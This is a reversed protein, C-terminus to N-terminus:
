QGSGCTASPPGAVVTWLRAVDPRAIAIRDGLEEALVAHAGLEPHLVDIETKPVDNWFVVTDALGPARLLVVDCLRPPGPPPADVDAPDVREWDADLPTAHFPEMARCGEFQFQDPAVSRPPDVVVGACDLPAVPRFVQFEVNRHTVNVLYVSSRIREVAISTALCALCAAGVGFPAAREPWREPVNSPLRNARAGASRAARALAHYTVPLVALAALDTPDSWVHWRLGVASALAALAHAASPSVKIAVFPLAVGAICAIRAAARRAGVLAAVLVPAVVLGAVDSLKGTLWAPAIGAGKLLHDNLLLVGLGAWWPSGFYSAIARGRSRGPDSNDTM